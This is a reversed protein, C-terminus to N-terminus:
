TRANKGELAALRTVVPQAPEGLAANSSRPRKELQLPVRKWWLKLAEWHIGAIVQITLFPYVFLLKLLATDSLEVRQGTFAARLLSGGADFQDICLAVQAAPPLLSFRYGGSMDNFPSVFLAKACKQRVVRDNGIAPLVYSHREGFTNNVEYVTARLAGKGDYCYFVSIPNFVFGFIRPLTLVQVRGLTFQLGAKAIQGSVWGKLNGSGDGHDSARFAMIARREIGLLRLRRLSQLEDLDILLYFIRYRLYHEKPRLRRHMVSGRYIASKIAGQM